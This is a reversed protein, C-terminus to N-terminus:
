NVVSAGPKAKAGQGSAVLTPREGRHPKAVASCGRWARWLPYCSACQTTSKNDNSTGM